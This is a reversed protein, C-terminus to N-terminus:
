FPLDETSGSQAPESGDRKSGDPLFRWHYVTLELSAKATGDQGLYASVDVTGDAIIAKGKKLLEIGKEAQDGWLTLRWWITKKKDGFGRDEALSVELVARGEATYKLESDRGLRGAVTAISYM